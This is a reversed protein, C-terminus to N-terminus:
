VIVLHIENWGEDKTFMEFQKFFNTIKIINETCKAKLIVFSRKDVLFDRFIFYQLKKM